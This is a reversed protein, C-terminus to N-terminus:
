INIFLIVQMIKYTVQNKIAAYIENYEKSIASSTKVSLQAIKSKVSEYETSYM